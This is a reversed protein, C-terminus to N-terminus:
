ETIRRQQDHTQAHAARVWNSVAPQSVGVAEAIKTTTLGIGHAEVALQVRRESAERLAVEVARLEDLLQEARVQDTVVRRPKGPRRSFNQPTM